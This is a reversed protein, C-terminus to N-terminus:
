RPPADSVKDFIYGSGTDGWVQEGADNWGRDLTILRQPQVTVDSTAYSAGRFTNECGKGITGGGFAGDLESRILIISCGELMDLDDITLADFKATDNWAGIYESMEGPLKFVDSQFTIDDVRTLRYVRQRYPQDLSSAAAQEVYMWYEGAAKRQPWIPAQVLRIHFYHDPDFAAQKESSFTGAMWTALTALEANKAPQASAPADMENSTACSSLVTACGLLIGTAFLSVLPTARAM